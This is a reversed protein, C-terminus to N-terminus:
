RTRMPILHTHPPSCALGDHKAREEGVAERIRFAATQRMDSLVGSHGKMKFSTPSVVYYDRPFCHHAHIIRRSSLNRGPYCLILFDVGLEQAHGQFLRPSRRRNGQANAGQRQSIDGIGSPRWSLFDDSEVPIQLM